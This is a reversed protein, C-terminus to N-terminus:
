TTEGSPHLSALVVSARVYDFNDLHRELVDVRQLHLHGALALRLEPLIDSPVFEGNALLAELQAILSAARIPDGTDAVTGAVTAEAAVPKSIASAPLLNATLPFRVEFSFTSGRGPESTAILEGGMIKVLKESISLGLGTGAFRRTISGDAQIFPEFIQEIRNPAIGIGTDRVSFRLTAFGPESTTQEVNVHVEGAETFKIANAVLNNLVQGLRMADGQLQEPVGPSINIDFSLGKTEANLAFLVAVNDLTNTLSFPASELELRGAEVKSYDLIDNLIALLAHASRSIRSLYDRLRPPLDQELALTTLGIIANMPTRIEHSMNALFEGKSRSANEAATKAELLREGALKSETIDRVVSRQGVFKGDADFLDRSSREAWRLEGDKRFFRVEISGLGNGDRGISTLNARVRKAEALDDPHILPMPFDPMAQCEEVTYGSIREIAPSLWLIKGDRDVWSEWNYTYDAITRFKEEQAALVTMSEFRRKENRYVAVAALVSLVLFLVGLGGEKLAQERWGSLSEDISLGVGVIHQYNKIRRVSIFRVAQDISSVIDYEGSNDKSQLFTQLPTPPPIKGLASKGDVSEPHRAVIPFDGDSRRIFVSGQQGVELSLFIRSFESLDIPAYVIGSFRGDPANLRRAVVIIRKNSIAGDVPESVVMETSNDDRLKWFYSRDAINIGAAQKLRTGYLINGQADTARLAIAEPLNTQLKAFYTNVERTQLKHQQLRRELVIEAAFLVADIKEFMGTINRELVRALNRTTAHTETRHQQYSTLLSNAVLASVLINLLLVAGLLSWFRRRIEVYFRPPAPKSMHQM